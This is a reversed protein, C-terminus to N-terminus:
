PVSTGVQTKTLSVDTNSIVGNANVDNRFNFSMVPAAVQGKVSAVDTNSVVGNSNVDGVLVGMQVTENGTNGAVDLVGNLTVTIYQGTSVSTLNVTYQNLNPGIGSTSVTGTGTTPDHSTVAASAVSTLNNPFTFVLM